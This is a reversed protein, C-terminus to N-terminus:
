KNKSRPASKPSMERQHSHTYAPGCELIQEFFRYLLILISEISRFGTKNTGCYWKQITCVVLLEGLEEQARLYLIKLKVPNNSLTEIIREEVRREEKM